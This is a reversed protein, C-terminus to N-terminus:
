SPWRSMQNNAEPQKTIQCDFDEKIPIVSKSTTFRKLEQKGSNIIGKARYCWNSEFLNEHVAQYKCSHLIGKYKGRVDNTRPLIDYLM